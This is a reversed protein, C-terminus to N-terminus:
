ERSGIFPWVISFPFILALVFVYRFSFAIPSAALLSLFLMGVPSLVVALRYKRQYLLYLGEGALIWFATGASLYRYTFRNCYYTYFLTRM